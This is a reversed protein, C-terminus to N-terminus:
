KERARARAGRSRETSVLLFDKRVCDHPLFPFCGFGWQPLTPSPVWSEYTGEREERGTGREEMEGKYVNDLSVVLVSV